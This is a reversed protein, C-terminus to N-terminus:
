RVTQFAGYFRGHRIGTEGQRRKACIFEVDNECHKLATDWKARKESDEPPESQKLYYEHRYLFVVTDADQEISGSERLDSLRPRKDERQEVARSLQALAMLGVQNARASSKLSRSIQTIEATRNDSGKDADVLQLYDLVVLGLTIGKAAFKRTQRRILANLRGARISPLDAIVFPLDRIADKARIIRHLQERSLDGREINGFNIGSHGDFCLDAALRMSLQVASMELSVFLVGHGARAARMAYALAALTKGMGPRGAVISLDGPRIPGLARDLGEIGSTIGPPLGEELQNVMESLADGASFETLKAGLDANIGALATEAIAAAADTPVDAKHAEIIAEQLGEILRRRQALERIQDAFDRAGIVEVGSSMIDVLYSPGGVDRMAADDDFFPKLTIPNAIKGEGHLKLIATFIRAHLPELFDDATVRDAVPDIIKGTHMMAGLLACEAEVNAIQPPEIAALM